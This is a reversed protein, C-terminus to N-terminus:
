NSASRPGPRCIDRSCGRAEALAGPETGVPSPGPSRRLSSWPSTARSAPPPGPATGPPRSRGRRRVCVGAGADRPGAEPRAEWSGRPGWRWRHSGPGRQGPGARGLGRAPQELRLSGGRGLAAQLHGLEGGNGATASSSPPTSLPRCPTHAAHACSCTPLVCGKERGKPAPKASLRESGQGRASRNIEPSPSPGLSAPVCWGGGRYLIPVAWIHTQAQSFPPFSAGGGCGQLGTQASILTERWRPESLCWGRVASGRGGCSAM